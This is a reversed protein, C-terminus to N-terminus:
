AADSDKEPEGGYERRLKGRKTYIGSGILFARAKQRSEAERSTVEAIAATIAKNRQEQTLVALVKDSM